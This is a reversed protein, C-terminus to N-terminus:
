DVTEAIEMAKPKTKQRQRQAEAAKSTTATNSTFYVCYHPYISLITRVGEPDQLLHIGKEVERRESEEHLKLGAKM